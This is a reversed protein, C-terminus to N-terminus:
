ESHGRSGERSRGPEEVANGNSRKREMKREAKSMWERVGLAGERFPVWSTVEPGQILAVKSGGGGWHLLGAHM